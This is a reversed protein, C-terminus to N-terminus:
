PCRKQCLRALSHQYEEPSVLDKIHQVFHQAQTSPATEGQPTDLDLNTPFAYSDAISNVLTNLEQEDLASQQWAKLTAAYLYSCMTQHDIAEMTKGFSASIQLLNGIRHLDSTRNQGAAHLLAPNFFLADGKELPLQVHHEAFYQKVEPKRWAMYGLEYQHSFPLLQTPGSNLPMDSHALAGQLTLSSSLRHLSIPYRSCTEDSQFGLHYDRHPQQAQGGPRVINVQSTMQWNPGLWAEAVWSLMPNKYYHLFANPDALAVKQLANWIRGNAGQKAFHDGGQTSGAEQQLIAEYLTNHRDLLAMNPQAQKIVLVGPGSTSLAQHLESLTARPDRKMANMLDQAQYILVNQQCQNATPYHDLNLTQQCLQALDSLEIEDSSAFIANISKM